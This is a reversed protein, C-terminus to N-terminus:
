RQYIPLYHYKVSLSLVALATSYVIGGQGGQWSGDQRQQPALVREVEKRAHEAYKGGMQYMAQAYYYTGYYFYIEGFRLERRNAMLWEASGKVEPADYQGCVQMALMGAAASSYTPFGGPTYCFASAGDIGRGGGRQTRYTNRLFGLASDIAGAPVELGANKASRLAMVQWVSISLDSDVSGPNYRWGGQFMAHKRVAQSKLILDIAKELRDLVLKDTQEDVGMGAVEALLLTVIGHGYMRSGDREGFFGDRGQHDPRLLYNIARRLTQGQPTKDSPQHGVALMAMAALATMAVRNGGIGGIRGGRQGGEDAIWGENL